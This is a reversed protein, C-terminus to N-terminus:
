FESDFGLVDYIIASLMDEDLEGEWEDTFPDGGHGEKIREGIEDSAEMLRERIPTTAFVAVAERAFDDLVWSIVNWYPKDELTLFAKTVHSLMLATFQAPDVFGRNVPGVGMMDDQTEGILGLRTQTGKSGGHAFDSAFSYYPIYEEIGAKDALTPLVPEEDDELDFDAWGYDRKYSHKYRGVLKNKLDVLEEETEEDIEEFGLDQHHKRYSELERFDEITRHELFRKATSQGHDVIFSAAVAMEYIPRWRAFAGGPYGARLLALVERSVHCTRVHLQMLVDFRYNEESEDNISAFLAGAQENLIIHFDLLDIADSWRQRIRKRAFAFILRYQLLAEDYREAFKDLLIDAAEEFQEDDLDNDFEVQDLYDVMELVSLTFWDGGEDASPTMIIRYKGLQYCDKSEPTVSFALSACAGVTCNDGQLLPKSASGRPQVVIYEADDPVETPSSGCGSPTLSPGGM